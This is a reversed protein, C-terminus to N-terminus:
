RTSRGCCARHQARQACGRRDVAEPHDDPHDPHDQRQGPVHAAVARRDRRRQRDGARLLRSQHQDEVQNILDRVVRRTTQTACFVLTKERQDIMDMFTKM